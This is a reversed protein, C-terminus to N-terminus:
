RLIEDPKYTTDGDLMVVYDTDSSISRFGLRMANGKGKKPEHIVTAGHKRAVDATKDSSNNDIVMIELTYGFSNLREVPFSKIVAGIGGEENYCPILVTIKKTKTKM